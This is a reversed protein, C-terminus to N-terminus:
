LLEEDLGVNIRCRCQKRIAGWMMQCVSVERFLAFLASQLTPQPQVPHSLNKIGNQVRSLNLPFCVLTCFAYNNSWSPSYVYAYIEWVRGNQPNPYTTCFNSYLLFYGKWLRFELETLCFVSSLSSSILFLLSNISFLSPFSHFPFSIFFLLVHFSLPCLIPLYTSPLYSSFSTYLFYSFICILSPYYSLPPLLCFFYNTNRRLTRRNSTVALTTGLESIRTMRIFSASLEESVDTGVLAVYRSM